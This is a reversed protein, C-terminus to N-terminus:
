KGSETGSISAPSSCTRRAITAPPSVRSYDGAFSRVLVALSASTEESRVLHAWIFYMVYYEGMM